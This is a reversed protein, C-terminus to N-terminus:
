QRRARVLAVVEDLVKVEDLVTEPGEVGPVERGERGLM